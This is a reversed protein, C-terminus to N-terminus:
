NNETKSKVFFVQNDKNLADNIFLESVDYMEFDEFDVVVIDEYPVEKNFVMKIYEGLDKKDIQKWMM